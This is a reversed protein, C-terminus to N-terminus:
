LSIVDDISNGVQKYKEIVSEPNKMEV